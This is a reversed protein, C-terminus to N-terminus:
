KTKATTPANGPGARSMGNRVPSVHIAEAAQEHVGNQGPVRVLSAPDRGPTILRGALM